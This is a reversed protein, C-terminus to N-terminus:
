GCLGWKMRAIGAADYVHEHGGVRDALEALSPYLQPMCQAAEAKAAVRKPMFLEKARVKLWREKDQQTHKPHDGPDWQALALQKAKAMSAQMANESAQMKWWKTRFSQKRWQDPEVWIAGGDPTIDELPGVLAGSWRSLALGTRPNRGIHASEAILTMPGRTIIQPQLWRRISMGLMWPTRIGRERHPPRETLTACVLSYRRCGSATYTRWHIAATAAAGDVLVGAGTRAPDIGLVLM